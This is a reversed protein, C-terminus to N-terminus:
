SRPQIERPLLLLLEQEQAGGGQYSNFDESIEYFVKRHLQTNQQNGGIKKKESTNGGNNQNTAAPVHFQVRQLLIPIPPQTLEPFLIQGAELIRPWHKLM